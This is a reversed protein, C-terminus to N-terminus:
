VVCTIVIYYLLQNLHHWTYFAASSGLMTGNTIVCQQNLLMFWPSRYGIADADLRGHM